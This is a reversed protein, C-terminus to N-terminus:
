ILILGKLDNLALLALLTSSCLILIHLLYLLIISLQLKLDNGELLTALLGM